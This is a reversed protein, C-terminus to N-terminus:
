PKKVGEDRTGADQGKLREHLARLAVYRRDVDARDSEEPVSEANARHIMAAQDMLVQARQPDTTQEMITTLADLQRIMVAPMGRSAQRIKEFARQVLREYSVQDSIVRIVGRNDRHVQTPTWVRAIKCLCDGLWDICTLATFTDNVAPSLARLAIEVLQDVGFAVDQTLTRHPGTAQARALYDAVQAAATAPWVSALERGEVLFHGPRYPLRIVADAQTAVRVLTQHRIFQLYGSKPTRIVSGTTEIAALLEDLSPGQAPKRTSRPRDASQVAVAHALDEAISAIVQPLQIQTAIHHIFYILVALDILVLGFATTISIHPVFEGRDGPAISILAVVCYVFTAVFTGLTLQTGRDRIFNRLMRPGFQTSALTLTVITISFVIGVVTIVSAAVSTLLQRAADASGSIVWAPPRFRGEYAARDLRVTVVFLGLAGVVLITPVLWLNTRLEERQWEPWVARLRTTM